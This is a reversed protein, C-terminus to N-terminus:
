DAATKGAKNRTPYCVVFRTFHDILVLIHDYGGSSKELELFDLSLLEFPSSTHISTLEEKVQKVPTKQKVCRCQTKTYKEVDKEMYPWYFRPRILAMVKDSSVHGMEDHLERLVLSKYVEPLVLQTATSTVRYLINDKLCLKNWSNLLIRQNPSMDSLKPKEGSHVKELIDRIVPDKRQEERIEDLTWPIYKCEIAEIDAVRTDPPTYNSDTGGLCLKVDKDSMYSTFNTLLPFRSLADADYNQRGPRYQIDFNFDALASVWRQSTANLRQTNFIHTLPNNDTIVTFQKAYYLYDRFSECIAWKMCLFELKNSHYNGEAANLTRSTYAIVKHENDQKQYLVAGLGDYSADTHLVFPKTFDPYAMVPFCTIADILKETVTQHVEGWV